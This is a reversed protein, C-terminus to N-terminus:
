HLGRLAAWHFVDPPQVMAVYLGTCLVVHVALLTALVLLTKRAHPFHSV